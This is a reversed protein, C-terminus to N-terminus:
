MRFSILPSTNNPFIRFLNLVKVTNNKKLGESLFAWGEVGFKTGGTQDQFINIKHKKFVWIWNRSLLEM